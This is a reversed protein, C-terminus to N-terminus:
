LNLDYWGSISVYDETVFDKWTDPTQNYINLSKGIKTTNCHFLMFCHKNYLMKNYHPVFHKNSHGYLYRRVTAKRAESKSSTKMYM